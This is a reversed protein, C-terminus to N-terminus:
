HKCTSIRFKLRKENITYDAYETAKQTIFKWDRETLTRKEYTEFSGWGVSGEFRIKSKPNCIALLTKM